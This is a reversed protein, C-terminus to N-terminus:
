QALALIGGAFAKWAGSASLPVSLLKLFVLASGGYVYVAHPRGRTRWDHVAALALLLYATFAPLLTIAVPPPGVSGPPALALIFWRAVPADLISIAALLMLRKHTEPRRVASIALAFTIAFFTIGALPVIVFALGQDKLGLAASTKMSNIAAQIGFITMATALSIGVLGVTRHDAVRGSNALWAQVVLFLSWTFFVAAHVHIIPNVKLTATALPLFYTPAFGLFAVAACAAMMALYFNRELGISQADGSAASM